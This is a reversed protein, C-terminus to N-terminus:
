LEVWVAGGEGRLEQDADGQHAAHGGPAREEPTLSMLKNCAGREKFSGTIQLNEMKLFVKCGLRESLLKSPSCPTTIIASRIRERAEEIESFQILLSPDYAHGGTVPSDM